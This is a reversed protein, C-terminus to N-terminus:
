EDIPLGLTAPQDSQPPLGAGVGAIAVPPLSTVSERLDVTAFSRGAGADAGEGLSASVTKPPGCGPPFGGSSGWWWRQWWRKWRKLRCGNGLCSLVSRKFGRRRGVRWWGTIHGGHPNVRRHHGGCWRLSAFFRIEDQENGDAPGHNEQQEDRHCNQSVKEQKSSLARWERSRHLLSTTDGGM